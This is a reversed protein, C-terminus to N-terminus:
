FCRDLQVTLGALAHDVQACVLVGGSVLAGVVVLLTVIAFM